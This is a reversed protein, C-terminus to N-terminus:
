ESCSIYPLPDKIGAIKFNNLRETCTPCTGCSRGESDVGRYCTHTNSFDVNLLNGIIIEDAKQLNVFPACLEIKHKRNLSILNNFKEMFEVTCDWYGYLDGAQAGYFIYNCGNSEAVSAALTLFLQNRFPVYTVPQSPDTVENMNPVDVKKNGSLASVKEIIDSFFEIHLIKHEIGLMECTKAAKTLEIQHRQNYNFSLALVNDKANDTTKVIMNTLITSDLGGSLIVVAKHENDIKPYNVIIQSKDPYADFVHLVKYLNESHTFRTESINLEM